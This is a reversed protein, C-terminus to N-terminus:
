KHLKVLENKIAEIHEFNSIKSILHIYHDGYTEDNIQVTHNIYDNNGIRDFMRNFLLSRYKQPSMNLKSKGREIERDDCYCYLVANNKDLYTRILGSIQFLTSANNIGMGNVLTITVNVLNIDISDTLGIFENTIFFEILYQYGESTTFPIM